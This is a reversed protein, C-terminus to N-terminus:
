RRFFCNSVLFSSGGFSGWHTSCADRRDRHTDWGDAALGLLLAGGM